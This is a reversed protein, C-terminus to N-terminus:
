EDLPEFFGKKRQATSIKERRFIEEESAPNRWKWELAVEERAEQVFLHVQIDKFTVM